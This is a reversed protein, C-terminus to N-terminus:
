FVFLDIVVASSANLTLTLEPHQNSDQKDYITALARLRVVFWGQPKRGLLHNVANDGSALTVNKLLVGNNIPLQIVPNLQQAWSTQLLSLDKSQTQFIPLSM